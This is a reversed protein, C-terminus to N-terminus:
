QARHFLEGRGPMQTYEGNRVKRWLTDPTYPDVARKAVVGELDLRQVAAFLDRGRGPVHLV